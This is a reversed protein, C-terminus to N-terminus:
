QFENRGAINLYPNNILESRGVNFSESQVTEVSSFFYAKRLLYNCSMSKLSKSHTKEMKSVYKM